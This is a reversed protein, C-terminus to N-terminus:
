GDMMVTDIHKFLSDKADDGEYRDGILAIFRKLKRSEAGTLNKFGLVKDIPTSAKDVEAIEDETSKVKEHEEPEEPEDLLALDDILFDTRLEGLDATLFALEKEDFGLSSLDSDLEKDLWRLEEHLTNTDIEGEAVKNDAIRLAAAEAKSLDYRIIVPVTKWGLEKLALHRGHGTIISGDPEVHPPNVLGHKVISNAIKKVQEKTHIKANKEYPILREIAWEEEVRIGTTVKSMATM